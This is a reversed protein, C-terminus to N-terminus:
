RAFHQAVGDNKLGAPAFVIGMDKSANNILQFREQPGINCLTPVANGNAASGLTESNFYQSFVIAPGLDSEMNRM